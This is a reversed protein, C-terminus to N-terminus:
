VSFHLSKQFSALQELFETKRLSFDEKGVRFDLVIEDQSKLFRKMKGYTRRALAVVEPDPDLTLVEQLLDLSRAGPYAELQTILESRSESDLATQRLGRIMEEPGEAFSIGVGFLSLVLVIKKVM